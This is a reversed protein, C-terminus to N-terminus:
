DYTDHVYYYFANRYMSTNLHFWVSNISNELINTNKLAVNFNKWSANFKILYLM